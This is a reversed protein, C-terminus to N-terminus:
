FFIKTFNLIIAVNNHHCLVKVNRVEAAEFNELAQIVYPLSWNNPGARVGCVMQKKMGQYTQADEFVMSPM